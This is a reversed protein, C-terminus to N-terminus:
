KKIQRKMQNKMMALNLLYDKLNFAKGTGSKNENNLGVINDFVTECNKTSNIDFIKKKIPVENETEEDVRHKFQNAILQNVSTKKETCLSNTVCM